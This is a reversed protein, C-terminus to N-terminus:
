KQGSSDKAKHGDMSPLVGGMELGQLSANDYLYGHSVHMRVTGINVEEFSFPEFKATYVEDIDSHM